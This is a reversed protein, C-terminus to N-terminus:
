RLVFLVHPSHTKSRRPSTFGPHPTPHDDRDSVKYGQTLWGVEEVRKGLKMLIAAETYM